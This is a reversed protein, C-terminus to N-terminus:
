NALMHLIVIALIGGASATTVAIVQTAFHARIANRNQLLTACGTVLAALPLGVLLIWLTWMRGAYWMVILEATASPLHRALLSAMFLGAPFILALETVAIIRNGKANM